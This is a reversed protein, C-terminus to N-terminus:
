AIRNLMLRIMALKVMSESNAVLREYDKSLRRYGELWAFSREVVWRKPLVQFGKGARKVVDLIWGFRAKVIEVLDGQYAQDAFIRKLRPVRKYLNELLKLATKSEHENAAHM